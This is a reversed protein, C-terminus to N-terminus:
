FFVQAWSSPSCYDISYTTGRFLHVQSQTDTHANPTLTHARAHPSSPTRTHTHTHSHANRTKSEALVRLSEEATLAKLEEKSIDQIIAIKISIGSLSFFLFPPLCTEEEGDRRGEM